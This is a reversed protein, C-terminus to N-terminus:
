VMAICTVCQTKQRSRVSEMGGANEGLVIRANRGDVVPHREDDAVPV